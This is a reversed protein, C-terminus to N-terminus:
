GVPVFTTELARSMHHGNFLRSLQRRAADASYLSRTKELGNKSLRMWIEESNYLEIVREAFQAPDDAVLVDEGDTLSMGEVAISTAVVPVGLGMSQNIKGKVGAGFRIPAISLRVSEFYPRVDPVAGTVIITEDALAVIPPPAKDGIVYSKVGPLRQVILPHIENAFFLVADVNPPHLFSGIFLLGARNSFSSTPEAVEVINSVVEIKKNQLDSLL